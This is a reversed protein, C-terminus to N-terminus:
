SQAPQAIKKPQRGGFIFLVAVGCVVLMDAVNFNPWKFGGHWYIFDVVYGLRIRDAINGISGAVAMAFGIQSPRDEARLLLVVLLLTLLIVVAVRMWVPLMEGLGFAFNQNRAYQLTLAGPIVPISGQTLRGEAWVKTVQDLGVGVAMLAATVALALPSMKVFRM